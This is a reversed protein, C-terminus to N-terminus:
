KVEKKRDKAIIPERVTVRSGEGDTAVKFTVADKNQRLTINWTDSHVVHALGVVTTETDGFKEGSLYLKKFREVVDKMKEESQMVLAANGRFDKGPEAKLVKLGAAEIAKRAPQFRTTDDAYAVSTFGLVFVSLCLVATLRRM